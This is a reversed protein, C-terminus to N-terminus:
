PVVVELQRGRRESHRLLQLCRDFNAWGIETDALYWKTEGDHVHLILAHTVAPMPKYTETKLDLLQEANRYAALQAGYQGRVSRGSKLDILATIRRGQYDMKGIYDVTGAYTPKFSYVPCEVYDPKFNVAELASFAARVDIREADSLDRFAHSQGRVLREVGTHIRNGRDAYARPDSWEKLTDALSDIAIGRIAPALEKIRKLRKIFSKLSDDIGHAIQQIRWNYLNEAPWAKALVSTVSPMGTKRDPHAYRRHGTSDEYQLDKLKM